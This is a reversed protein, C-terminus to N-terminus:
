SSVHLTELLYLAAWKHQPLDNLYYIEDNAADGYREALEGWSISELLKVPDPKATSYQTLLPLFGESGLSGLCFRDRLDPAAAPIGGGDCSGGCIVKLDRDIQFTLVDCMSSTAAMSSLDSNSCIREIAEREQLISSRKERVVQPLLSYDSWRVRPATRGRGQWSFPFWGVRAAGEPHLSRIYEMTELLERVNGPHLPIQVYSEIGFEGARRITGIVDRFASQRGAYSDHTREMGYVTLQLCNCGASKLRNWVTDPASALVCGNTPLFFDDGILGLGFATEFIELYGEHVTPEDFIFFSLNPILPRLEALKELIFMVQGTSVQSKKSDGAVWCHRCRNTCAAAHINVSFANIEPKQNM